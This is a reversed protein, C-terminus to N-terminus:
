PEQIVNVVQQGTEVGIAVQITLPGAVEIRGALHFVAFMRGKPEPFVAYGELRFVEGDKGDRASVKMPVTGGGPQETLEILLSIGMDFPLAKTRWHEIGGRIVTFTGDSNASAYEAVTIQM